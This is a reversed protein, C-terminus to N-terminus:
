APLMLTYHWMSHMWGQCLLNLELQLAVCSTWLSLHPLSLHCGLWALRGCLSSFLGNQPWLLRKMELKWLQHQVKPRKRHPNTQSWFLLRYCRSQFMAAASLALSAHESEVAAGGVEDSDVWSSLRQCREQRWVQVAMPRFWKFSCWKLKKGTKSIPWVPLLRDERRSPQLTIRMVHKWTSTLFPYTKRVSFLFVVTSALGGLLM